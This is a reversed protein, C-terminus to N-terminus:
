QQPETPAETPEASEAAPTEGEPEAAEDQPADAAEGFHDDMHSHLDAMNTSVGGFRPAEPQGSADRYHHEHVFGGDDARRTFIGELKKKDAKSEGKSETKKAM